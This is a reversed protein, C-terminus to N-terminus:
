SKDLGLLRELKEGISKPFTYLTLTKPQELSKYFEADQKFMSPTCKECSCSIMHNCPGGFPDRGSGHCKTCQLHLCNKRALRDNKEYEKLADGIAGIKAKEKLEREAEAKRLTELEKKMAKVEEETPPKYPPSVLEADDVLGRTPILLEVGNSLSIIWSDTTQGTRAITGNLKIKAGVEIDFPNM